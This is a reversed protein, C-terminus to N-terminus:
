FSLEENMKLLGKKCILTDVWKGKSPKWVQYRVAGKKLFDEIEFQVVNYPIDPGCIVKKKHIIRYVSM